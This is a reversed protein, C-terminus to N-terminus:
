NFSGLVKEYDAAPIYLPEEDEEITDFRVAGDLFANDTSDDNVMSVEGVLVTGRGEEGYFRHAHCPEFCVSEGPTLRLTEGTRMRREMGDVRITFEGELIRSDAPDVHYLEILLNGGGRVIIDEHKKWHHHLLTVQKEKVMMIKEAYPKVRGPGGNRLTFLTLGFNDFDEKGFGTIDWGLKVDFIERAAARHAQWDARRYFAFPPLRFNQAAFFDMAERITRNVLSRKM